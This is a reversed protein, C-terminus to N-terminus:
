KDPLSCQFILEGILVYLIAFSGLGVGWRVLDFGAAWRWRSRNRIVVLITGAIGMVLTSGWLLVRATSQNLGLWQLSQNAPCMPSSSDKAIEAVFYGAVALLGWSAARWLFRARNFSGAYYKCVYTFKTCTPALTKGLVDVMEAALSGFVACGVLWMALGINASLYTVAVMMLALAIAAGLIISGIMGIVAVPDLTADTQTPETM